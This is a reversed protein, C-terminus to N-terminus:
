ESLLQRPLDEISPGHLVLLIREWTVKTVDKEMDEASVKIEKIASDNWISTFLTLLGVYATIAIKAPTSDILSGGLIILFLSGLSGFFSVCVGVRLDTSRSEIWTQIFEKNLM